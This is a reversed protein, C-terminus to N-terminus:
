RGQSVLRSTPAPCACPVEDAVASRAPESVADFRWRPPVSEEPNRPWLTDASADMRDIAFPHDFLQHVIRGGARWAVSRAELTSRRIM